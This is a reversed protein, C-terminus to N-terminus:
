NFVYYLSICMLLVTGINDLTVVLLGEEDWTGIIAILCKLLGEVVCLSMLLIAIIPKM